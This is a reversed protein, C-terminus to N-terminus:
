VRHNNHSLDFAWFNTLIKMGQLRSFSSCESLLESSFHFTLLQNSNSMLEKFQNMVYSKVEPSFRFCSRVSTM